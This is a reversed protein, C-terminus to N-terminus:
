LDIVNSEWEIVGEPFKLQVCCSANNEIRIGEITADECKGYSKPLELKVLNLMTTLAKDDLTLDSCFDDSVVTKSENDSGYETCFNDFLIHRLRFHETKREDPDANNMAKIVEADTKLNSM